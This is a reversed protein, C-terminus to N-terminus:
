ASLTWPPPHQHEVWGLESGGWRAPQSRAQGGQLTSVPARDQGVESFPLPAPSTAPPPSIFVCSTSALCFCLTDKGKIEASYICSPGGGRRVPKCDHESQLKCLSYFACARPDPVLSEQNTLYRTTSVVLCHPNTSTQCCM